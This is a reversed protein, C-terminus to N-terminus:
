VPSRGHGLFISNRPAGQSALASRGGNSLSSVLHELQSVRKLLTPRAEEKSLPGDPIPWLAVIESEPGYMKRLQVRVRGFWLKVLGVPLEPRQAIQSGQRILEALTAITPPDSPSETATTPTSM